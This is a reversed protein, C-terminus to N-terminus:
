PPLKRIYQPIADKQVLRSFYEQAQRAFRRAQKAFKRARPRQKRQRHYLQALIFLNRTCYQGKRQFRTFLDNAELAAALSDAFQRLFFLAEAKGTLVEALIPHGQKKFKKRYILEAKTYNNFAPKYKRQAAYFYGIQSYSSALRPHQKGYLKLILRRSRFLFKRAQKWKHLHTYTVGMNGLLYLLLSNTTQVTGEIRRLASRQLRLATGYQQNEMYINALNNEISSIFPHGPGQADITLKIARQYFDIALDPRNNKRHAAGLANLIHGRQPHAPNLYKNSDEYAQLFMKLAQPYQGRYYAMVGRSRALRIRIVSPDKLLPLLAEVYRAFQEAEDYRALDQALQHLELYILAQLRIDNLRVAKWLAQLATDYAKRGQGQFHLFIAKWRLADAEIPLYSLKKEQQLLEKIAEFGERMKGTDHLAKALALQKYLKQIQQRQEKNLLVTKTRRLTNIDKCNEIPDLQYISRVASEVLKTDAKRFIKLLSSFQHLHERLCQTRLALIEYPQEKYVHTARCAETYQKQWDKDYKEIAHVAREWAQTAFPLKTQQFAQQLEQKVTPNWLPLTFSQINTCPKPSPFFLYWAAFSAALIVWLIGMRIWRSQERERRLGDEIEDLLFRINPFRSSREPSLGRQLIWRLWKPVSFGRKSRSQNVQLHAQTRAELSHGFFPREGYIAEYLSVCFAFQDTREDSEQGNLQEPAMYAPTGMVQGPETLSIDLDLLKYDEPIEDYSGSPTIVHHNDSQRFNGRALGFDVVCFSGDERQLVNAPKFDRHILNAEHAAQLGRGAQLFARIISKLSRPAQMWRKLTNGAVFEMAIFHQTGFRGTDYVQVVNPHSLRAMSRAERQIRAEAEVPDQYHHLDLRLLKVALKRDLDPDYATYVTGVAGSSIPELLIYRGVPTGRPPHRDPVPVVSSSADSIEEESGEKLSAHQFTEEEEPRPSPLPKDSPM